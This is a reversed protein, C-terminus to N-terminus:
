YIGFLSGLDMVLHLLDIDEFVKCLFVNEECPHM